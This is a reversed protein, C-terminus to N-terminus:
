VFVLLPYVNVSRAVHHDIVVRVFKFTTHSSSGVFMKAFGYENM